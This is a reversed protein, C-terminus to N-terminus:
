EDSPISVFNFQLDSLDQFTLGAELIDEDDERYLWEVNVQKDQEELGQLRKIIQLLMKSSPTNFYELDFLVNTKIPNLSVYEDIWTLIPNYFNMTDDPLSRGIFQIKGEAVSRELLIYPTRGSASIEVYDQGPINEIKQYLKKLGNHTVM